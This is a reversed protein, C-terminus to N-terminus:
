TLKGCYHRGAAEGVIMLEGEGGTELFGLDGSEGRREVVNGVEDGRGLFGNQQVFYYEGPGWTV